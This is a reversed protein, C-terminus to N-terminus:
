LTAALHRCYERIKAEAEVAAACSPCDFYHCEFRAVEEASLNREMYREVKSNLLADWHETTRCIAKITLPGYHRVLDLALRLILWLCLAVASYISFVSLFYFDQMAEASM